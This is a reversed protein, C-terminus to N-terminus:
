NMSCYLNCLHSRGRLSEPEPMVILSHTAVGRITGTGAAIRDFNGWLSWTCPIGGFEGTSGPTSVRKPRDQRIIWQPVHRLRLYHRNLTLCLGLGLFFVRSAPRFTRYAWQAAPMPLVPSCVSWAHATPVRNWRGSLLSIPVTYWTSADRYDPAEKLNLNPINVQQWLLTQVTKSHLTEIRQDTHTSM